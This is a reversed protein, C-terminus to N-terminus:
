LPPDLILCYTVLGRLRIEEYVRFGMRVYVDRNQTMTTEALVPLGTKSSASYLLNRLEIATTMTRVDSEVGLYWCHLHEGQSARAKSVLSSRKLVRFVRFPGIALLGLCLEDWLNYIWCVPISNLYFCIIGQNNKSLYVGSRRECYDFMFRALAEKRFSYGLGTKGISYHVADNGDFSNKMIRIATKRKELFEMM